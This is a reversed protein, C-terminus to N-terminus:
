DNRSPHNPNTILGDPFMLGSTSKIPTMLFADNLRVGITEAPNLLDFLGKQACLPWARFGPSIRKYRRHVDLYTHELFFQLDAATVDTAAAGLASWLFGHYIDASHEFETAVSDFHPGITCVYVILPLDTSFGQLVALLSAPLGLANDSLIRRGYETQPNIVRFAVAPEIADGYRNLLNVLDNRLRLSSARQPLVNTKLAASLERCFHRALILRTLDDRTCSDPKRDAAFRILLEALSTERLSEAAQERHAQEMLHQLRNIVTFPRNGVANLCTLLSAYDSPHIRYSFPRYVM